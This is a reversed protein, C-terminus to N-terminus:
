ISKPPQWVSGPCFQPRFKGPLPIFTIPNDKSAIQINIPELWKEDDNSNTFGNHFPTEVNRNQHHCIISHLNDGVLIFTKGGDILLVSIIIFLLKVPLFNRKKM